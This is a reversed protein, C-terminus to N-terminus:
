KEQRTKIIRNNNNKAKKNTQNQKTKNQKRNKKRTSIKVPIDFHYGINDRSMINEM